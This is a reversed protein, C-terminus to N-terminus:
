RQINIASFDTVGNQGGDSRIKSRPATYVACGKKSYLRNSEEKGDKTRIGQAHEM